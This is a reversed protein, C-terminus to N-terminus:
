QAVAQWMGAGLALRGEGVWPPGGAVHVGVRARNLWSEFESVASGGLRSFPLGISGERERVRGDPLPPVGGTLPPGRDRGAARYAHAVDFLRGTHPNTPAAAFDALIGRPIRFPAALTAVDVVDLVM